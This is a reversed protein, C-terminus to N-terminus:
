RRSSPAKTTGKKYIMFALYASGIPIALAICFFDFLARIGSIDTLHLGFAKKWFTPTRLKYATAEILHRSLPYLLTSFALFLVMGRNKYFQDDNIYFSISTGILYLCGISLHKVFYNKDMQTSKQM